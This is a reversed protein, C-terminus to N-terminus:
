QSALLLSALMEGMGRHRLAAVRLNPREARDFAAMGVSDGVRFASQGLAQVFGAVVELKPPSGFRMSASVDVLLRVTMAAQQRNVRVLWESRLNAMSARLDLRRPDPRDHLRLHTAFELGAGPATGEHSGTRWGGVPHPSRYRFEQVAAM